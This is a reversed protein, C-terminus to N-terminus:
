ISSLIHLECTLFIDIKLHAKRISLQGEEDKDCLKLVKIKKELVVPGIEVLSPVFCEQTFSIYNQEFSPGRM